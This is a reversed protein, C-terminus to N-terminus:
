MANGSIRPKGKSQKGFAYAEDLYWEELTANGDMEGFGMDTPTERINDRGSANLFADDSDINKPPPKNIIARGGKIRADSPVDNSMQPRKKQFEAMKKRLVEGRDEEEDGDDNEPRGMTDLMMAHMADEPNTHGVGFSIKRQPVPTLFRIIDEVGKVYKRDRERILTPAQTIGLARVRPANAANIKIFELRYVKNIENIYKGAHATIIKASPSNENVAIILKDKTAM